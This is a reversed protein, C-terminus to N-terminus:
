FPNINLRHWVKLGCSSTTCKYYFFDTTMNKSLRKLSWNFCQACWIISIHYECTPHPCHVFSYWFKIIEDISLGIEPDQFLKYNLFKLFKFDNERFLKGACLDYDYHHPCRIATDKEVRAKNFNARVLSIIQEKSLSKPQNPM